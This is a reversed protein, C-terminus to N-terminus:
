RLVQPVERVGCTYGTAGSATLSVSGSGCYSASLPASNINVIPLPKVTLTGVNSTVSNCTGSVVCRYQRGNMGNTVANQNLTANTAGSINAMSGGSNDQWQYSLGTGTASVSLTANAGECISPNGPQTSISANANVVVTSTVTTGSCGGGNSNITFTVTVASSTTNTLTGSIDTTGSSSIGTVSATNNRTWSYTTGPIGNSTSLVINTIPSGSCITQSSPTATTLPQPNVTLTAANSTSTNSCLDNTVICRYQNTSMGVTVSTLSLATTTAGSVNAGNSLNTFSGAGVKVQWQFTNSGNCSTGVSFSATAGSCITSNSPQTSISPAACVKFALTADFAGSHNCQDVINRYRSVLVRYTATSPATWTM